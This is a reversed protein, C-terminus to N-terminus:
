IYYLVGDLRLVAIRGRLKRMITIAASTATVYNTKCNALEERTYNNYIFVLVVPEDTAVASRRYDVVLCL